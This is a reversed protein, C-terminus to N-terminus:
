NDLVCGIQLIDCIDELVSPNSVVVAFTSSATWHHSVLGKHGLAVLCKCMNASIQDATIGLDYTSTLLRM